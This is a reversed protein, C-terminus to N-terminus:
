AANLLRRQFDLLRSAGIFACLGAGFVFAHAIVVVEYNTAKLNYFQIFAWIIRYILFLLIALKFFSYDPAAARKHAFSKMIKRMTVYVIALAVVDIFAILNTVVPNFIFNLVM